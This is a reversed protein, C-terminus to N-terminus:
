NLLDKLSKGPKFHPVKKKPIKVKEGTRPNRGERGPRDRVAFVGFGRIEVRDGSSLANCIEEFVANVVAEVDRASLGDSADDSAIKKILEIKTM